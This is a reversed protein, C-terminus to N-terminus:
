QTPSSAARLLGAPWASPRCTPNKPMKKFARKEYETLGVAVGNLYNVYTRGFAGLAFADVENNNKLQESGIGYKRYVKELMVEKNSNGKGTIFMKLTTPPVDFYPVETDYMRTRVMWGLGAIDVVSRGKSAFSFGEIFVINFDYTAAVINDALKQLRRVMEMKPDVNPSYTAEVTFGESVACLATGTLSLDLGAIKM